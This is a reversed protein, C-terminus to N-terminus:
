AVHLLPTSDIIGETGQLTFCRRPLYQLSSLIGKHSKSTTTIDKTHTHTYTNEIVLDPEASTGVYVKLLDQNNQDDGLQLDLNCTNM